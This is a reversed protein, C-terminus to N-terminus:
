NYKLIPALSSRPQVPIPFLKIPIPRSWQSSINSLGLFGTAWHYGRSSDTGPCLGQAELFRGRLKLQRFALYSWRTRMTTPRRIISINNRGDEATLLLTAATLTPPSSNEGDGVKFHFADEFVWFRLKKQKGLFCHGNFNRM